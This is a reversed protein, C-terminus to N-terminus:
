TWSQAEAAFLSGFFDALVAFWGFINMDLTVERRPSSSGRSPSPCREEGM